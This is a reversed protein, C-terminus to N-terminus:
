FSIDCLQKVIKLDICFTLHNLIIKIMDRFSPGPRPGNKSHFSERQGRFSSPGDNFRSPPGDNHRRPPGENLLGILGNNFRAPPGDNFRNPPGDNFRSPPGDNFRSPPGDNFRNPPGDIFRKPPGNFFRDPPGDKLRSPPGENFRSPPGDKFITPPVDNFPRPPGNFLGKKGGEIIKKQTGENLRHPGDQFRHPGDDFGSNFRAPPGFNFDNPLAGSQFSGSEQLRGDQFKKSPFQPKESYRSSSKKFIPKKEISPVKNLESKNETFPSKEM